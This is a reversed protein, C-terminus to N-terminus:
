KLEEDYFKEAQSLRAQMGKALAEDSEADIMKRLELILREANRRLAGKRKEGMGAAAVEKRTLTKLDKPVTLFAGLGDPSKSGEAARKAAKWEDEVGKVGEPTRLDGIKGMPTPSLPKQAPETFMDPPWPEKKIVIRDPLKGSALAAELHKPDLVLSEARALAQRAAAPGGLETPNELANELVDKDLQLSKFGDEAIGMSERVPTKPGVSASAGYQDPNHLNEIHIDGTQKAKAIAEEAEKQVAPTIVEPAPVADAPKAKGKQGFILEFGWM